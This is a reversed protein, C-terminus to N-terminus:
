AETKVVFSFYYVHFAWVAALVVRGATQGRMTLFAIGMLLTVLLVLRKKAKLTLTKSRVYSALNDQYFRTEAFRQSLRDSSKVFGFVALLLFPVVPLGPLVTGAIGLALGACGVLLFKLKKNM